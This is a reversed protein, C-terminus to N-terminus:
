PLGICGESAITPYIILSFITNKSHKHHQVLLFYSFKRPRIPQSKHFSYSGLELQPSKLRILERRFFVLSASM